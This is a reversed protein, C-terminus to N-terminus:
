LIMRQSKSFSTLMNLIASCYFLYAKQCIEPIAEIDIYIEILFNDGLKCQFLLCIIVYLSM